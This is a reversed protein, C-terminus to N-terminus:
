VMAAGVVVSREAPLAGLQDCAYLLPAPHPKGERLRNGGVVLQLYHALNGLRTESM